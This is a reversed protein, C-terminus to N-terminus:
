EEVQRKGERFLHWNCHDNPAWNGNDNNNWGNNNDTGGNNNDNWGNDDTNSQGDDGVWRPAPVQPDRPDPSYAMAPTAVTVLGSLVLWSLKHKLNMPVQRRRVAVSTAPPTPGANGGPSPLRSPPARRSIQLNA